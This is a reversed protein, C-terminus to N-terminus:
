IAYPEYTYCASDRVTLMAVLRSMLRIRTKPGYSIRTKSNTCKSCGIPPLQCKNEANMFYGVPCIHDPCCVPTTACPEDEFCDPRCHCSEDDVCDSFSVPSFTVLPLPVANSMVQVNIDPTIHLDLILVSQYM